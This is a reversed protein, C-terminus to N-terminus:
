IKAAQDKVTRYTPMKRALDLKNPSDVAELAATTIEEFVTKASCEPNTKVTDRFKVLSSSVINASFDPSPTHNEIRHHEFETGRGFHKDDCADRQLRKCRMPSINNGVVRSTRSEM